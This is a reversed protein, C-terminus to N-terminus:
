WSVWVCMWCVVSWGDYMMHDVAVGSGCKVVCEIGSGSSSCLLVLGVYEGIIFM